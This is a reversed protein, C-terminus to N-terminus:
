AGPLDRDVANLLCAVDADSTQTFDVYWQGVARFDDPTMLAVFDDVMPELQARAETSTTPVAIVISAAGQQRLAQVAAKMTSGTAIGDDVLVITRGHVHLPDSHGRYRTERRHLEKLERDAVQDIVDPPIGEARVVFENIVRVGGSAIAGMALEEWGPVGLKRVILVDLPVGLGVAVEAAVPVGGRPLGLVLVDDRGRYRSLRGVLQRGADIRDRFRVHSM